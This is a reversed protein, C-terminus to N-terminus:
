EILAYCECATAQLRNRDLITIQGRHYQILGQQQLTSAVESVGARRVGLMQALIEQTLPFQDTNMRDQVMLLCRCCRQQISHLRNCVTIQAMQNIRVQTYHQLLQYLRRDPQVAQKFAAVEMRFADGPVQVVTQGVTRDVNLFIPLGVMGENGVAAVEIRHQQLVTLLSIFGRIPFYICQIPVNPEYLVQKVQLPVSELWPILQQFEEVPLAALLQNAFPASTAESVCM